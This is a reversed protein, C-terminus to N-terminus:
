KHAARYEAVLKIARDFMDEPVMSGRIKPYVSEALTRWEAEVDPSVAHVELQWKKKMSEVADDSERRSEAQIQRGAEAAAMMLGGRMAEPVADWARKTIVTAGVLPAWNLETMHKTFRYFQGANAIVPPAPVADVGRTQLQLLVDTLDLAVPKYGLAQMISMEKESNAATVFIKQAKLDGPRVAPNRSFFRVWGSDGWFLSVFGKALLRRELEPRLQERVYEQEALSHFLMPIEQLSAVAPDIESLGGVSLMAAQLQGSAMRKVTAPESGQTGGAFITLAVQAGSTKRWKEGMEKLIRDYSTGAPAVTGLRIAIPAGGGAASPGAHVVVVVAGVTAAFRIVDRRM